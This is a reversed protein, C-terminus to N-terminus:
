SIIKATVGDIKVLKEEDTRSNRFTIEYIPSYIVAHESVQFLEDEIKGINSPRKVIRSKVLNIEKKPSAQIKENKKNFEDLYKQPEIREDIQIFPSDLFILFISGIVIGNFM